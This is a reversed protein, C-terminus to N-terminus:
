SEPRIKGMKTMSLLEFALSVSREFRQGDLSVGVGVMASSKCCIFSSLRSFSLIRKHALSAWLRAPSTRSSCAM